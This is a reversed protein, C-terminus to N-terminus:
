CVRSLSDLVHAVKTNVLQTRLIEGRGLKEGPGLRHWASRPDSGHNAAFRAVVPALIAYGHAERHVQHSESQWQRYGAVFTPMPERVQGQQYAQHHQVYILLTNSFSRSRFSAACEMARRWDEGTVLAAVSQALTTHVAALTAERDTATQNAM